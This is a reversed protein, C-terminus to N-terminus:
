PGLQFEVLDFSINFTFQSLFILFHLLALPVQLPCDVGQLTRKLGLAAAPIFGMRYLIALNLQILRNPGIIVQLAHLLVHLLGDFIQLVTQIFSFLDGHLSALLLDLLELGPHTFDSFMYYLNSSFCHAM